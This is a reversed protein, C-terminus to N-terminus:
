GRKFDIERHSGHFTESFSILLLNYSINFRTLSFFFFFAKGWLTFSKM